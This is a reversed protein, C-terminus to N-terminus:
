KENGARKFRSAIEQMEELDVDKEVDEPRNKKLLAKKIRKRDLDFTKANKGLDTVTEDPKRTGIKGVVEGNGEKMRILERIEERIDILEEIGVGEIGFKGLLGIVLNLQDVNMSVLTERMKDTLVPEELEELPKIKPLPKM